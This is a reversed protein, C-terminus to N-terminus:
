CLYQRQKHCNFDQPLSIKIIFGLINFHIHGTENKEWGDSSKLNSQNFLYFGAKLFAVDTKSM